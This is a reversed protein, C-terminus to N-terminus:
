KIRRLTVGPATLFSTEPDDYIEVAKCGYVEALHGRLRMAECDADILDDM